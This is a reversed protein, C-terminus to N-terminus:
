IVLLLGCLHVVRVARLSGIVTLNRAKHHLNQVLNAVNLSIM